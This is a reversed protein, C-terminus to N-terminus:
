DDRGDRPPSAFRTVRGDASTLTVDAMPVLAKEMGIAQTLEEVMRRLLGPRAEPEVRWDLGGGCEEMRGSGAAWPTICRTGDSLRVELREPTLRAEVPRPPGMPVCAALVVALVGILARM